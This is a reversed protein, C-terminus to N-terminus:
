TRPTYPRQMHCVKGNIEKGDEDVMHDVFQETRKLQEALARFYGWYTKINSETVFVEERDNWVAVWFCVLLYIGSCRGM